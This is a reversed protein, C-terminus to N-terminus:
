QALGITTTMTHHEGPGLRVASRGVNGAEVCLMTLWGDDEIDATARAGEPGPNWVVTAGSGSKEVRISRGAAVDNVVITRPADTYIRDVEGSVRLPLPEGYGPGGTPTTDLYAVGELGVTETETVDAIRLYTHLVEEFAVPGDGTNTVDLAVSLKEGVVVTCTALFPHPWASGRTAPSDTLILRVTVDTGDDLVEDVSWTATRAFGHRPEDPLGAVPGFWPFCVPIGGRIATHNDFRSSESMWLASEQGKPAWATVHAGHTYIEAWGQPGDIRLM